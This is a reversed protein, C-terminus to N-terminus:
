RPPRSRRQGAGPVAARPQAPVRPAGLDAAVAVVLGIVPGIGASHLAATAARLTAGTTAVDDVLLVPGQGALRVAGAMVSFSPGQLREARSRGHQSRQLARGGGGAEARRLLPFAPVGLEIAVAAALLEAHDFGRARVRAPTTPAWTAGAVSPAASRAQRDGWGEALQTGVLSGLAAMGRRKIALVVPRGQDYPALSWCSAMGAAVALAPEPRVVSGLCAGCDVAPGDCVPCRLPLLRDLLSRREIPRSRVPAMM